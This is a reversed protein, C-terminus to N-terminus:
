GHCILVLVFNTIKGFFNLALVGRQDGHGHYKLEDERYFDKISAEEKELGSEPFHKYAKTDQGVAWIVHM